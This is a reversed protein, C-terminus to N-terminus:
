RVMMDILRGDQMHLTRNASRRALDADHTVLLLTTGQTQLYSTLLAMVEEATATDLNGTPEDALLIQPRNVLARAIAVRQCEGGSLESPRHDLRGGLGVEELARRAAARRDRRPIGAFIMPLEVNDQATRSLILNYAQFIMGVTALRYRALEGATLESVDRGSVWLRGSTPRDLGGLINLLTSKGSGSKGLLAIREGQRIEISVGRLAHVLPPHTGYTKVVDLVRVVAGADPGPSTTLALSM